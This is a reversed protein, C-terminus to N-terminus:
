EESVNKLHSFDRVVLAPSYEVKKRRLNGIFAGPPKHYISSLTSIHLLIEDLIPRPLDDTDAV